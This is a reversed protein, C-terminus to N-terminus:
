QQLVCCGLVVVGRALQQGLAVVVYRRLRVVRRVDLRVVRAANVAVDALGGHVRLALHMYKNQQKRKKEQKRSRRHNRM